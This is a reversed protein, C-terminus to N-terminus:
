IAYERMFPAIEKAPLVARCLGATAVAGPMGWVVSTDEDQAIVAGGAEVIAQCGKVGDEGMGTLVVALSHRGYVKAISSFLPDVAPRCFHVPPDDNLRILKRTGEAEIVMHVGGPAIYARGNQIEEGDVAEQCPWSSQKSISAALISTFTPPMHQVILIPRRITAPLRGLLQLM